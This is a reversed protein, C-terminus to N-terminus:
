ELVQGKFKLERFFRQRKGGEKCIRKTPKEILMCAHVM